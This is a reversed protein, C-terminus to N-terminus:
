CKRRRLRPKKRKTKNRKSPRRRKSRPKTAIRQPPFHPGSRQNPDRRRNQRRPRSRRQKPEVVILVRRIRVLLVASIIRTGRHALSPHKKSNNKRKTAHRIIVPVVRLNLLRLVAPLTGTARLALVPRVALLTGVVSRLPM